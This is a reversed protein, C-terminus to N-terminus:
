EGSECTWIYGEQYDAKKVIGLGIHKERIRSREKM